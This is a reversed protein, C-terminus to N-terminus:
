SDAMGVWLMGLPPTRRADCFHKPGMGVCIRKSGSRGFDTCYCTISRRTEVPNVPGWGSIKSVRDVVLRDQLPHCEAVFNQVITLCSSLSEECPRRLRQRPRLTQRRSLLVTSVRAKYGTASRITLTKTV